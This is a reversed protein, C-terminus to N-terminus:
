ESGSTCAPSHEGPDSEGDSCEAYRDPTFGFACTPAASEVEVDSEDTWSGRSDEESITSDTEYGDASAVSSGSVSGVSQSSQEREVMQPVSALGDDGGARGGLIGGSSSSVEMEVGPRAVAGEKARGGGASRMAKKSAVIFERAEEVVARAQQATLPVGAGLQLRSVAEVDDRMKEDMRGKSGEVLTVAAQRAMREYAAASQVGVLRRVPGGGGWSKTGKTKVQDGRLVGPLGGRLITQLMEGVRLVLRLHFLRSIGPRCNDRAVLQAPGISASCVREKCCAEKCQISCTISFM